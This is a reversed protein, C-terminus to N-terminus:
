PVAASPASNPFAASVERWTRKALLREERGVLHTYHETTELKAHGLWKQILTLVVLNNAASAGFGHRLAKPQQLYEPIDAEAMVAKVYRWATTRSWPWIRQTTQMPDAAVASLCHVRDLFGLLETPVPVSRMVGHRRRKLTEFTIIGAARDVREPTLALAESIRPGCLVLVACFTGIEDGKAFAARLFAQREKAVLYKRRGHTDFLSWTM